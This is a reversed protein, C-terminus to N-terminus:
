YFDVNYFRADELSKQRILPAVLVVDGDVAEAATVEGIRSLADKALDIDLFHELYFDGVVRSPTTM